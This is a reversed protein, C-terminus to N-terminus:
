KKLLEKLIEELNSISAEMTFKNKAKEYGKIGIEQRLNENEILMDMIKCLSKYNGPEYLFGDKGNEIIEIPGGSASALVPKKAMMGEVIVIGFPEPNRSTHLIIDSGKMIFPVDNRFGTFIIWKEEKSLKKLYEYYKEDKKFTCEGVILLCAKDKNKMNKFALIGVDQGKWEQIRGIISFIIKDEPIGFEERLKRKANFENISDFKHIDSAPYNIKADSKLFKKVSKATFESNAIYLTPKIRFAIGTILSRFEEKKIDVHVYFISKINSIKSIIGAFVFSHAGHAIILKIDNKKIFKICNYIANLTKPLERLRGGKLDIINKFNENQLYKFFRGKKVIGIYPKFIKHYKLSRALYTEIGGIADGGGHIYLIKDM